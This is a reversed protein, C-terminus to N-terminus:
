KMKFNDTEIKIDDYLCEGDNGWLINKVCGTDELEKLAAYFVNESMNLLKPIVEMFDVIEGHAENIFAKLILEAEKSM